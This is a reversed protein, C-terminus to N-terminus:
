AVPMAVLRGGVTAVDVDVGFIEELQEARMVEAPTGHAVLHGDKLAVMTDAYAAATNVDHIVIVVSIGREDCVKRLHRMMDRAHRMDLASLPEDLLLYKTDQALAMAIFARQRQGGSLEDLFRDAHDRMNVCDLAQAVHAYDDRTRRGKSHPHRGLMVIEAVTLRISLHNEQRLIAVTRALEEADWDGLDVGDIRVNGGRLPNLRGVGALLTSKGAGNPGILATVGSDPITFSVDCVVPDADYAMTVNSIEIM